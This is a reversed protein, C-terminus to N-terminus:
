DAYGLSKLSERTADDLLERAAGGPEVATTQLGALLTAYDGAAPALDLLERPDSILDYCQAAGDRPSFIVKRNGRVIAFLPGHGRIMPNLTEAYCDRDTSANLLDAGDLGRPVPLGFLGLLTPAVDVTRVTRSVRLGRKVGDGWFVLPVHMQEAYLRDGHAQYGHDGLGEGHDSVVVVVLSRCRDRLWQVTKSLMADVYYIECDYVGVRGTPHASPVEKLCRERFEEPPLVLRDHPDFLHVWAFFKRPRRDGYWKEFTGLTEAARRQCERTLVIGRKGAPGEREGLFSEEYFDFGRDLGYRKSELPLASVFAGTEYGADRFREAVTGVKPDLHHDTFGHIFRVGHRPPYLGTLISAHSVPTTSASCMANEFLTGEAALSDIFPTTRKSYGYCSLHDARVTDLTVLLVGRDASSCGLLLACLLVILQLRMFTAMLFHM